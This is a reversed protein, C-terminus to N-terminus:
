CTKVKKLSHIINYYTFLYDIANMIRYLVTTIMDM